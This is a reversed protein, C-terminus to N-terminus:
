FRLIDYLARLRVAVEQLLVRSFGSWNRRPVCLRQSLKRRGEGEDIFAPHACLWNYLHSFPKLHHGYVQSPGLLKNGATIRM